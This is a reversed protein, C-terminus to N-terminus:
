RMEYLTKLISDERQNWISHRRREDWEGEFFVCAMVRRLPFPLLTEVM